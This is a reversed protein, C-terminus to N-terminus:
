PPPAPVAYAALADHIAVTLQDTKGQVWGPLSPDDPELDDLNPRNSYLRRIKPEIHIAFQDHGAPVVQVVFAIIISKNRVQIADGAGTSETEGEPGWVKDLTIFAGSDPNDEGIKYHQETAASEAGRFLAEPPGRYHAERATKIEAAGPPCGATAAVLVACTLGLWLSRM